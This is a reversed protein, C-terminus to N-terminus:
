ELFNRSSLFNMSSISERRHFLEVHFFNLRHFSHPCDFNSFFQSGLALPDFFSDTGAAMRQGDAMTEKTAVDRSAYPMQSRPANDSVCRPCPHPSVLGVSIPVRPLFFTSCPTPKTPALFFIGRQSDREFFGVDAESAGRESADPWSDM